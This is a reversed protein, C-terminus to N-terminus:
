AAPPPQIIWPRKDASRKGKQVRLPSQEALKRMLIGVFALDKCLSRASSGVSSDDATLVDKLDQMDGEWPTERAEVVGAGVPHATFIEKDILLLLLSEQEQEFMAELVDPHQYDKVGFRRSRLEEPITFEHRLAHVFAPLAGAITDRFAKRPDPADAFREWYQPCPQVRLVILKDRMDQTVPPLVHLKSDNLSITLRHFASVTVADRNKAHLRETDNAVVEKIREGFFQRDDYRTKSPIEEILLHESGILENNFNTEGFFYSKPDAARGGLVPTILQHQVRSKGCDPPGILVLCQGSRRSGEYLADVAIKLWGIFHAVQRREDGGLLAEIFDMVPSFDGEQPTVLRPSDRILVRATGIEAIGAASGAISAAFDVARTKMTHVILKEFQSSTQGDEKGAHIGAIKLMGKLQSVNMDLWGPVGNRAHPLFWRDSGNLWWLQHKAAAAEADFADAPPASEAEAALQKELPTLAAKSKRPKAPAAAGDGPGASTAVPKAGVGAVFKAPKGKGEKVARGRRNPASM